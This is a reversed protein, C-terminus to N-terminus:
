HRPAPPWLKQYYEQFVAYYAQAQAKHGAYHLAHAVENLTALQRQTAQLGQADQYALLEEVRECLTHAMTLAVEQEGVALLPGVMFANAADYPVAQDPMVQLGYLLVEQAQKTKGEQLLARALKAFMLRYNNVFGRQNEDHYVQPNDLGRWQCQHMFHHYMAETNVLPADTTNKIPLLRLVAGEYVTYDRLAINLNNLATPNFYIPREWRNTVVLDLFMLEKKELGRGKLTWQMTDALMPRYTQPIIGQASLAAKDIKFEIKEAPLSNNYAGASTRVKLSPHATQILQLYRDAALPSQVDSRAIYPLFDNPGYQRYQAQPLALPLAASQYVPRRLQQIYWDTNAYTLVVVRVDTRFGEVEQVYWLPFTDNDGGTFLIAHPACASLLNKAADVCLYRHSRDHSQWGQAGMLMPVLLCCVTGLPLAVKRNLQCFYHMVALSGLGIWITFILFSNAYFYDRARPEIPPPNWFLLFAVGLMLFLTLFVLFSKPHRRWQFVAGLLGLLLPLLLYNCRGRNQAMTQPVKRFTDLPSLWAADQADSARGAFNWLFYRFYGNALQYQFLFRLNDGFTPSQDPKLGLLNRYAAAQAANRSWLRPLLTCAQPAFVNYPKYGVIEYRHAGRRYVPKDKEQRIISATFHPGYLLPKHGYQERQLYSIFNVVSSPDSENIPPQANARILELTHSAYGILLFTLCLLGVHRGEQRSRATYYLGCALSVVLVLLFVLIGSGFPLSLHNVFLLECWFALKPLGPIIGVYIVGVLLGGVLLAQVTGLLTARASQKFYFILCLAPLTLLSFIRLGTSLGILYAVLVLWRHAQRRDEALEWQLMAWVALVMALTSSAYTEAETANAWFTDCFTLALAGISGAAWVMIAEHQTLAQASKNLLKRSLLSVIWFVVMVAGASALASSLNVWFAVRLVDGGALLSFLRGILLFLPAGPPHPVQLKYATAIYEGCDWFSASPAVTLAYVTAAIGFFGWGLLRNITTFNNM